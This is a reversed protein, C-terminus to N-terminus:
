EVTYATWGARSNKEKAEERLKRYAESDLDETQKPIFSLGCKACFVQGDDDHGTLCVANCRPCRTTETTYEHRNEM